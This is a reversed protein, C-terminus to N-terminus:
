RRDARARPRATEIGAVQHAAVIRLDIAIQQEGAREKVIDALDVLQGVVAREGVRVRPWNSPCMIMSSSISCALSGSTGSKGSDSFVSDLVQDDAMMALVIEARGLQGHEGFRQHQVIEIVEIGLHFGHAGLELAASFRLAGPGTVIRRQAAGQQVGRFEQRAFAGSSSLAFVPKGLWLRHSRNRSSGAPRAQPLFSRRRWSKRPAHPYFRPAQSPGEDADPQLIQACDLKRISWGSM